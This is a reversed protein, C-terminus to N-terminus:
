SARTADQHLQDLIESGNHVYTSVAPRKECAIAAHRSPANLWSRCASKPPWIPPHSCRRPQASEIDISDTRVSPHITSHTDDATEVFGEALTADTNAQSAPSEPAKEIYTDGTMTRPPTM